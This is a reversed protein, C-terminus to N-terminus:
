KMSEPVEDEPVPTAERMGVLFKQWEDETEDILGTGFMDIIADSSMEVKIDKSVDPNNRLVMEKMAEKLEEIRRARQDALPIERPIEHGEEGTFSPM